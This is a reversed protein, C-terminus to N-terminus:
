AVLRPQISCRLHEPLNGLFRDLLMSVQMETLQFTNEVADLMASVVLLLSEHFSLDAVESVMLYFLEGLTGEDESDRKAVSLLMYRVFVISVHATLADYSLGHYGKTLLLASKCVKFFVEIDWRKGYIRIIDEESLKMDTTILAIWEKRNNRNRVCVIRADIPSEDAVCIQVPLSLLYKSRGRRKRCSAYIEKINRMQGELRYRIKSSRKVMAIVHCGLSRIDVIQRPNAFWSDMLVYKAKHGARIATQLLEVMVATAKTRAMM